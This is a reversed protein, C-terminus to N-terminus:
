VADTRINKVANNFANSTLSAGGIRGISLSSLKKGKVATNISNEFGSIYYKSEYDTYNSTTKVSDVAGNTVVMTVTLSNTGNPVRYDITKTYTGDKYTTTVSQTSNSNNSSATGASSTTSNTSQNTSTSVISQKDTLGNDKIFFVYMMVIVIMSIVAFGVIKPTSQNYTNNM